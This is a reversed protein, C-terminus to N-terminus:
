FNLDLNFYAGFYILVQGSGNITSVSLTFFLKFPQINFSKVKINCVMAWDREIVLPWHFFLLTLASLCIIMNSQETKQYINM